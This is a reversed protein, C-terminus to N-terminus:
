CRTRGSIGPTLLKDLELFAHEANFDYNDVPDLWRLRSKQTAGSLNTVVSPELYVPYVGNDISRFAAYFRKTGRIGALVATNSHVVGPKGSLWAVKNQLTGHHALYVDMSQAYLVSELLPRGVNIVVKIGPDLLATVRSAAELEAHIMATVNSSLRGTGHPVCYGDIILAFDPYKAKMRNAIAAIGEVQSVWSRNETRITAWLVPWHQQRLSLASDITETDCTAGAVRRLRQIVADVVVTGGIRVLLCHHDISYDPLKNESVHHVRSKFEPFLEGIPGAPETSVLLASIDEGAGTHTARELGTLCNWIHHAFQDRDVVVCVQPPSTTCLYRGVKRCNALMYARFQDLEWRGLWAWDSDGLLIVTKHRPLYFYIKVYGMGERGVALFLTEGQSTFRYYIPSNIEPLFSHTSKLLEGTWPCTVSLMRSKVADLQFALASGDNNLGLNSTEPQDTTSNALIHRSSIGLSDLFSRDVETTNNPDVVRYDGGLVLVERITRANPMWKPMDRETSSGRVNGQQEEIRAYREIEQRALRRSKRCLKLLLGQARDVHRKM